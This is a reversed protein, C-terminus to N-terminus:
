NGDTKVEETTVHEYAQKWFDPGHTKKLLSLFKAPNMDAAQAFPKIGMVLDTALADGNFLRENDEGDASLGMEQSFTPPWPPDIIPKECICPNHGCKKCIRRDKAKIALELEKLINDAYKRLYIANTGNDIDRSDVRSNYGDNYQFFAATQDEGAGPEWRLIRGLVQTWFLPAKKRTLYVCVRLHKIDVGETVM